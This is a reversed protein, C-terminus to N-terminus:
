KRYLYLHGIHKLVLATEKLYKCATKCVRLGHVLSYENDQLWKTSISKDLHINLLYTLEWEWDEFDWDKKRFYKGTAVVHHYGHM